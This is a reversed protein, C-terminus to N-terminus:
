GTPQEFQEGAERVLENDILTYGRERAHNEIIERIFKPIMSPARGISAIAEATWALPQAM